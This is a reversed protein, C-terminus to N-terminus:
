AADRFLKGPASRRVALPVTEGAVEVVETDVEPSLGTGDVVEEAIMPAVAIRAVVGGMCGVEGSPVKAGKLAATMERLM